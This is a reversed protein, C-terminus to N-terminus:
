FITITTIIEKVVEDESDLEEVIEEITSIEGLRDLTVIAIETTVRSIRAKVKRPKSM